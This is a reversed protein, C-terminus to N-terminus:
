GRTISLRELIQRQTEEMRLRQTEEMHDYGLLHLMSHTLLFAYERLVSHGFEKAQEEMRKQCIMIEGLILEETDPDFCAYHSETEELISFDAEKGFPINPFSLVDTVKDIGRNKRNANQITKEEVLYVSVSAEYPCRYYALVAEVVDKAISEYDLALEEKTEKELYLTMGITKRDKSYATLKNKM